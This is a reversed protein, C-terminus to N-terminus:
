ECNFRLSRRVPIRYLFTSSLLFLRLLSVWFRRDEWLFHTLFLLQYFSFRWFFNRCSVAINALNLVSKIWFQIVKMQEKSAEVVMTIRRQLQSRASGGTERRDIKVDSGILKENSDPLNSGSTAQHHDTDDHLPIQPDSPTAPPHGPSTIRSSLILSKQTMSTSSSVVFNHHRPPPIPIPSGPSLPELPITIISSSTQRRSLKSTPNNSINSIYSQLSKQNPLYPVTAQPIPKDTSSTAEFSRKVTDDNTNGFATNVVVPSKSSSQNTDSADNDSYENKFHNNLLEMERSDLPLIDMSKAPPIPNPISSTSEGAENNNTNGNLNNAGSTNPNSDQVLRLYKFDEGFYKYGASFFFLNTFVLFASVYAV